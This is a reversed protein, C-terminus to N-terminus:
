KRILRIYVTNNTTVVTEVAEPAQFYFCNKFCDTNQKFDNLIKKDM